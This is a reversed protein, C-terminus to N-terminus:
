KWYTRSCHPLLPRASADLTRGSPPLLRASSKPTEAPGIRPCFHAGACGAPSGIPRSRSGPWCKLFRSPRWLGLLLVITLGLIFLLLIVAALVEYFHLNKTLFLYAFGIILLVAFASYDAVLVLVMGAAARAATHGRRVADDVFVAAGTMGASPATINLFVSTFWVPILGLLRGPVEVTYLASQFVTPFVVYYIAQVLLAAAIWLPKGAALTDVLKTAETFRSVVIVLFVLILLYYLWGRKM